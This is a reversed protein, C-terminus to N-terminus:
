DLTLGCKILFQKIGDKTDHIYPIEILKYGHKKAYERKLKDHEQQIKFQKLGGFYGVPAYHQKGQYEILTNQDPLYFDYRLVRDLDSKLTNFSHPYDYNICSSDLLSIIIKEGHSGGCKTCRHGDLFKYPMMDFHKGCLRHYFRVPTKSDVYTLKVYYEGDTIDHILRQFEFPTRKHKEAGAVHSCSPCRQGMEIFRYYTTKMTRGCDVHFLIVTSDVSLIDSSLMVYSGGVLNTMKSLFDSYTVKIHHTCIPCKAGRLLNNPIQPYNHNCINNHVEIPTKINNYKGLITYRNGFKAHVEKIFQATTKRRTDRKM